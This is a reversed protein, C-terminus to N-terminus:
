NKADTYPYILKGTRYASPAVIVQTKATRFQDVGHGEIHQYQVQLARPTAWEGDPGYKVDGVVTKLTAHHIYDAIKDQDLSRTAEVAQQLVQLYAYAWPVVYYGLPDVPKGAAKEQYQKLLGALGPFDMTNGPVVFDFNVVGNLQPGLATMISTSQPGSMAGGFMKTKLGIENAARIIGVTQSPYSSVFVIDPQAAQIARIVPTFDATAAPFTKDYVIKLGNEKANERAGAASAQGFPADAVIIALTRPTPKQQAALKFFGESIAKKPNAGLPAMSFYKGYHFKENVALSLLGMFVKNHQMVIPFAPAQLNAGFGGVVLDVKDVDLLKTYIGPVLAPNTQDDYYVLKVPRGLIGGEKNVNEEWIQMALLAVKGNAAQSGSLAMSFGVKIPEVARAPVASLIFAGALCAGLAAAGITAKININLM